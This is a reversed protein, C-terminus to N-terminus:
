FVRTEVRVTGAKKEKSGEFYHLPVERLQSQQKMIDAVKLRGIGVLDDDKTTEKDWISLEITMEPKVDDFIFPQNWQPQKGKLVDTRYERFNIKILCYPAM